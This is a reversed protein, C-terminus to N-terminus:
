MMSNTMLSSLLRGNRQSLNIGREITKYRQDDTQRSSGSKAVFVDFDDSGRHPM